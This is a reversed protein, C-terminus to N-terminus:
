GKLVPPIPTLCSEGGRHPINKTRKCHVIETHTGYQVGWWLYNDPGIFWVDHRVHCLNHRGMRIDTIDFRLTNPWNGVVYGHPRTFERGLYLMATGDRMMRERDIVGCCNYCVRKGNGLRAHRAKFDLHLSSSKGCRDCYFHALDAM